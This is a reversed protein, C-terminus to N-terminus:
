EHYYRQTQRMKINKDVVKIEYLERFRGDGPDFGVFYHYKGSGAQLMPKLPADDVWEPLELETENRNQGYALLLNYRGNESEETSTIRVEFYAENLPDESIREKLQDVVTGAAPPQWNPRTEVTEPASDDAMGSPSNCSLLITAVFLCSFFYPKFM